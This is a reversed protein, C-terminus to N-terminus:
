RGQKSLCPGWRSRQPPLKQPVLDRYRKDITRNAPSMRLLNCTPPASPATLTCKRPRPALLSTGVSKQSLEFESTSMAELCVGLGKKSFV